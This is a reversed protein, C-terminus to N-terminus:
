LVTIVIDWYVGIIKVVEANAEVALNILKLTERHAESGTRVKEGFEHV